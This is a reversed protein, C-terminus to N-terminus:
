RSGNNLCAMAVAFWDEGYSEQFQSSYFILHLLRTGDDNTYHIPDLVSEFDPFLPWRSGADHSWEIWVDSQIKCRFPGGHVLHITHILFLVHTACLRENSLIITNKRERIM